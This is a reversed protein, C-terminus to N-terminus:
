GHRGAPGLLVPEPGDMLILVRDGASPRWRDPVLVERTEGTGPLLVGMSPGDVYAVITEGADDRHGVRRIVNGLPATHLTGRLLDLYRVQRTGPDIVEGM